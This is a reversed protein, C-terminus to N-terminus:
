LGKCASAVNEDLQRLLDFTRNLGVRDLTAERNDKAYQCNAKRQARSDYDPSVYASTPRYANSAPQPTVYPARPGSTAPMAIYNITKATTAGSTCPTSQYSVAGKSGVCKFIAQADASFAAAFLLVGVITRM